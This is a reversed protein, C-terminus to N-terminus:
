YQLVLRYASQVMGFIVSLLVLLGKTMVAIITTMTVKVTAKLRPITPPHALPRSFVGLIPSPLASLSKAHHNPWRARIERLVWRVIGSPLLHIRQIFLLIMGEVAGGRASGEENLSYQNPRPHRQFKQLKKTQKQCGGFGAPRPQPRSPLINGSAAYTRPSLGGDM